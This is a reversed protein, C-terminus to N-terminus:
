GQIASDPIFNGHFGAPILRPLHVRAVEKLEHADVIVLDATASTLDNVFGLM